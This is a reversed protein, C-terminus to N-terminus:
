APDIIVKWNIGPAAAGAAGGNFNLYLRAGPPAWTETLLDDSMKVSRAVSDYPVFAKDAKASDDVKFTATGNTSAALAAIAAVRINAGRRWRAPVFEYTKGSLVNGSDANAALVGTQGQELPM